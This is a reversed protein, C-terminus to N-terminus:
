NHKYYRPNGRVFLFTDHKSNLKSICKHMQYEQTIILSKNTIKCDMLM